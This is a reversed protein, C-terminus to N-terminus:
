FYLIGRRAINAFMKASTAACAKGVYELLGALVKSRINQQQVILAAVKRVALDEDHKLQEFNM